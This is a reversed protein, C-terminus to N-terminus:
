ESIREEDRLGLRGLVENGGSEEPSPRRPLDSSPVLHACHGFSRAWWAGKKRQDEDCDPIKGRNWAAERKRKLEGGGKANPAKM